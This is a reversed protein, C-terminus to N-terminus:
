TCNHCSWRVSGHPRRDSKVVICVSFHIFMLCGSCMNEFHRLYSCHALMRKLVTFNLFSHEVINFFFAHNLPYRWATPLTPCFFSESRLHNTLWPYWLFYLNFCSDFPTHKLNRRSMIKLLIFNKLQEADLNVNKILKLITTICKQTVEIICWPYESQWRFGGGFNPISANNRYTIIM